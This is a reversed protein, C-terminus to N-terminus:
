MLFGFTYYLKYFLKKQNNMMYDGSDLMFTLMNYLFGYLLLILMIWIIITYLPTKKLRKISLINFLAFASALMLLYSFDFFYRALIGSNVTDFIIIALAAVFVSISLM